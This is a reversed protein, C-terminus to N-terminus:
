FNYSVNIGVNFNGGSLSDSLTTGGTTLSTTGSRLVNYTATLGATVDPSIAYDAGATLGINTENTSTTFSGAPGLLTSNTGSGSASGFLLRPGIYGAIKSDPSKFDYSVTLGYATGTGTSNLVDTAFQQGSASDVLTQSVGAKLGIQNINGRSVSPKYGFLVMPRISIQDSVSFKGIIGFSTNVGFEVVPGISYKKDPAPAVETPNKAPAVEASKEAAPAVETPNKAPAVEASKEAAPAVETPNKAPAVEASKDAAPATTAAPNEEASVSAQALMSAIAAIAILQALKM